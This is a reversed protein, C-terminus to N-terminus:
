YSYAFGFDCFVQHLLCKERGHATVFFKAPTGRLSGPKTSDQFVLDHIIKSFQPAFRRKGIQFEKGVLAQSLKNRDAKPVMLFTWFFPLRLRVLDHMAGFEPLRHAIAKRFKRLFHAVNERHSFHVVDRAFLNARNKRDRVAIEPHHQVPHPHRQAFTKLHVPEFCDPFALALRVMCDMALRYGM